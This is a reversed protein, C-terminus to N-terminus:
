KKAEKLWRQYTKYSRKIIPAHPNNLIFEKTKPDTVNGSGFDGYKNKMRDKELDSECKAVVSALMVIPYKKDADHEIIWKFDFPNLCFGLHAMRKWFNVENREWNDIYIESLNATYTAWKVIESVADAELLNLNLGLSIREPTIPVTYFRANAKIWDYIEFRKKRTMLKSDNLGKLKPLENLKDKPMLVGALWQSGIIESRNADDIGLVWKM